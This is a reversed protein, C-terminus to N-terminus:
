LPIRLLLGFVVYVFATVAVPYVILGILRRQGFLLLLALLYIAAAIPFLQIRYGFAIVDSFSWLALFGGSVLLTLVVRLPGGVAVRELDSRTSPPRTIAIAVLVLSVVIGLVGLVLPWTRADMQGPVERRLEIQLGLAFYVVCFVLATGAFAIELARSPRPTTGPETEADVNM